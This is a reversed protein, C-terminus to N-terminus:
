IAPLLSSLLWLIIYTISFAWDIPSDQGINLRVMIARVPIIFPETIFFALVYLRSENPDVFFPLLMRIIMAFSVVEMVISVTKALIYFIEEM